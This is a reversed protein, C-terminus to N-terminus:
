LAPDFKLSPNIQVERQKTFYEDMPELMIKMIADFIDPYSYEYVDYITETKGQFREDTIEYGTDIDLVARFVLPETYRTIGVRPYESWFPNVVGKPHPITYITPAKNLSDYHPLDDDGTFPDCTFIIDVIASDGTDYVLIGQEALKDMIKIRYGDEFLMKNFQNCVTGLLYKYRPINWYPDIENWRQDEPDISRDRYYEKKYFENYIENWTPLEEKAYISPEYIADGNQDTTWPM